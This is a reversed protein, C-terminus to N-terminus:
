LRVRDRRERERERTECNKKQKKKLSCRAIANDIFREDVSKRAIIVSSRTGDEDDADRLLRRDHGHADGRSQSGRGVGDDDDDLGDVGFASVIANATVAVGNSELAARAFVVRSMPKLLLEVSSSTSMHAACLAPDAKSILACTM